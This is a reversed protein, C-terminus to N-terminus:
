GREKLEELTDLSIDRSNNLSELVSYHHESEQNCLKKILIKLEEIQLEQQCVKHCSYLSLMVSVLILFSIITWLILSNANFTLSKDWYFKSTYYVISFGIIVFLVVSVGKLVKSQKM